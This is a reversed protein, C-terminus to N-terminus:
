VERGPALRKVVEEAIPDAVLHILEDAQQMCAIAETTLQGVTRIGTGIVTLSGAM